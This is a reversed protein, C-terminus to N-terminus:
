ARRFGGESNIVQGTVWDAEDACLWGILRAADAPAGWRGRPM